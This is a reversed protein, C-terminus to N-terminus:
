HTKQEDQTNSNVASCCCSVCCCSCSDVSPESAIVDDFIIEVEDFSPEMIELTNNNMFYGQKFHINPFRYKKLIHM